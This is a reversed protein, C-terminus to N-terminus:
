FLWSLKTFLTHGQDSETGISSTGYQYALQFAGFPPLFRWVFVTQVNEKSIVSNTQFFLKLFLDKRFYYHSRLVHIWTSEKEPDPSLWLRTLEYEMNWKDTLKIEAEAGLLRLDNDYNTGFGYWAGVVIGRRNDYEVGPSILTNRFDKEYRKFEETYEVVINWHSTLKLENNSDYEWSRLTGTQSWYVNFNNITRFSDLAPHKLWFMRTFNTDFERRDDDRIFGIVNMNEKLDEAWHSYRVHFHTTSSDYAPRVFWTTKGDNEPGHARVFQATMGLTDSFFLTMDAGVSGRNEGQWHRNAALLGISSSGFVAKKLRFVSYYANSRDNDPLDTGAFPDSAATLLAVDWSGFKGNFKAGWPIEGIRRSYFQTVRQKYLESGEQFFPRKEPVFLEFRTLNIQEQDAEITAFDPNVTFEVSVDNRVRYRLDVGADGTTKKGEQMRLLGYPIIDYRKGTNTGPTLGTLRGFAAVRLMDEAPGSWVVTELNRPYGRMVNLGWVTEAGGQFRLTRFPIAFEASWGTASRTAACQWVGDWREDETRGNDALRSDYQTGLVNTGFMYGTTRDLFTDLLIVVADEDALGGDRQTVTAAIRSPDPDQCVVLIYLKQEDFGVRFSTAVSAPQGFEPEFQVFDGTAPVAEWIEPEGRGDIVPAAALRHAAVARDRAPYLYGSLVQLVLLLQIFRRVLIL